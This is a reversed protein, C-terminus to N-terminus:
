KTFATHAIFVALSFLGASTGALQASVDLTGVKVLWRGPQPSSNTINATKHDDMNRYTVGWQYEQLYGWYLWQNVLNSKTKNGQDTTPEWRHEHRGLFLTLCRTSMPFDSLIYGHVFDHSRLAKPFCYSREPCSLQRSNM